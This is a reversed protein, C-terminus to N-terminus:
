LVNNCFNMLIQAVQARTATGTPDLRSAGKGNIVYNEVAWGMAEKAWSAVKSADTYGNLSDVKSVDNLYM